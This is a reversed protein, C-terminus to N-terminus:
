DLSLTKMLDLYRPDNRVGDLDPDFAVGVLSFERASCSRNLWEFGRDKEGLFFYLCAIDYAVAFTEQLHTELEPLLRRVTQKDDQLRAASADTWTKVLPYTDLALEVSTAFERKMDDYNKTRGCIIAMMLHAEFYNPDVAAVRNCIELAKAYDRRSNYYRAYNTNIVSSLPDLEVAKEIEVLAEVWRLRRLLVDISYWLHAASYSPKLKIAKMLEDEAQRINLELALIHGMTAHAEALGPDLELARTVLAKAMRLNADRDIRFNVGLAVSCDAQGVFGLAFSPDEHVALEFYERAKKVDNLRRKNWLYRGKLYLTYATTSETPRREIRRREPSLIEVSLADAVQKAVDSQVSFIEGLNKDYNQGWLHRDRAAEILQVTVRIKRGVKRFSGELVSDVKLERGIEEVKKTTGKYGMVSTRSIVELGSIGSVTSIIDETVGDALYEDKPDPGLNSLPLIAIRNAQSPAAESASSREWSASVAQLADRGEATLVYDGQSNSRVLHKLKALHFSLHGGSKIGVARKLEAFGMPKEDLAELIEIRLPHSVADFLEAKTADFSRSRSVREL